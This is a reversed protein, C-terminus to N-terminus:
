RPQTGRSQSSHRAILVAVGGRHGDARRQLHRGPHGRHDCTQSVAKALHSNHARGRGQRPDVLPVAEVARSASPGFLGASSFQGLEALVAGFGDGLLGGSEHHRRLEECGMRDRVQRGLSLVPKGLLPAQGMRHRQSGPILVIPRDAPVVGKPQDGVLQARQAAGVLRNEVGGPAGAVLGSEQILQQDAAKAGVVQRVAGVHAVLGGAGCQGFRDPDALARYADPVEFVRVQDDDGPLVRAGVVWPHERHQLPCFGVAGLDDRDVRQGLGRQDPELVRLPHAAHHAVAHRDGVLEHLDAEAAVQSQEFAQGPQQHLSIVTRGGRHDIAVEDGGVAVTELLVEGVGARDVEVCDTLRGPDLRRLQGPNRRHQGLGLAGDHAPRHSDGLVGVGHRGDALDGVDQQHAAHHAFGAGADARHAAVGVDLTVARHADPLLDWLFEQGCEIGPEADGDRAPVSVVRDVRDARHPVPLRRHEEAHAAVEGGRCRVGRHGLRRQAVACQGNLHGGLEIAAM